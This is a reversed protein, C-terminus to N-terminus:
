VAFKHILMIVQFSFYMEVFYEEDNEGWKSITKNIVISVELYNSDFLIIPTM